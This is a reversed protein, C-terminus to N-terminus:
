SFVTITRTDGPGQLWDPREEAEAADGWLVGESGDLCTLLAHNKVLYLREGARRRSVAPSFRNPELHVAALRLPPVKGPRNFIGERTGRLRPKVQPGRAGRGRPLAM